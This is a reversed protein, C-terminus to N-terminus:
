PAPVASAEARRRELYAREVDNTALERARAYAEAAEASRGLRRLLEARTAHLLHYGDLAGDAALAEVIALAPAPGESQAVAVARNLAVVPSPVLALLHDYLDVIHPWDTAAASLAQAHTAAIAAQVQYPGPAALLAARDLVTLGDVIRGRDWRSRDQEALVVLEGSEAQRADRRSDQLLLLALLGLVEPAAPMLQALVRALRIAESALERRVLTAGATASYGENFILYLVHLVSDLREPLVEAPPVRYPIGADRIKRKARVLRQGLTTEPLLFARAIEHTRLGGLLRLTLAIQADAALAPHCCTFILRLRDDELAGHDPPQDTAQDTPILEALQDVKQRFAKARRLRDIAKRRATTAIWAGPNPPLGNRPWHELAEIFAEQVSEEAL